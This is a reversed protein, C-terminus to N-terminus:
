VGEEKPLSKIVSSLSHKKMARLMKVLETQEKDGKGIATIFPHGLLEKTSKREEPNKRLCSNVFHMLENSGNKLTPPEENAIKQMAQAHKM